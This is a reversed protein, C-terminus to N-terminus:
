FLSIPLFFLTDSVLYKPFGTLCIVNSRSAQSYDKKKNSARSKSETLHYDQKQLKALHPTVSGLNQTARAGLSWTAATQCLSRFCCSSSGCGGGGVVCVCQVSSVARIVESDGRHNNKRQRSSYRLNAGAYSWPRARHSRLLRVAKRCKTNPHSNTRHNVDM